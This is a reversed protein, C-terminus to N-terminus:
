ARAGRGLEASLPPTASNKGFHVVGLDLKVVREAEDITPSCIAFVGVHRGQRKEGIGCGLGFQDADGTQGSVSFGDAFPVVNFVESKLGAGQKATDNARAIEWKGPSNIRIAPAFEGAFVAIRAVRVLEHFEPLADIKFALNEDLLLGRLM